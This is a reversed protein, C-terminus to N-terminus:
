TRPSVLTTCQSSQTSHRTLRGRLSERQSVQARPEEGRTKAMTVREPCRESRRKAQRTAGAAICHCASNSSPRHNQEGQCAEAFLFAPMLVLLELRRYHSMRNFKSWSVNTAAYLRDVMRRALEGGALLPMPLSRFVSTKYLPFSSIASALSLLVAIM